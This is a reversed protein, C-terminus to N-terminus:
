PAGAADVPVKMTRRIHQQPKQIKRVFRLSGHRRLMRREGETLEPEPTAPPLEERRYVDPLARVNEAREGPGPKRRSKPVAIPEGKRRQGTVAFRLSGLKNQTPAPLAYRYPENSRLMLFAITVLKRATATVAINRNKRKAVRRFFAGLPGPHHALHQAAQTLMWRTHRRGAKTIPGHYCHNASQKIRPVLGLYSAAHDGDKFRTIDGLAALLSQAAAYGFGPLTMLLRVRDEQYALQALTKDLVAIEHNVAEILRLDGEILLRDDDAWPYRQLWAIGKQSFLVEVPPVILAQALVSQIRNKARSRDSVLAARRVTLRRLQLTPGDPQWVAPLYGCRLLHALVEADVKDTKIKAQAIAKTQLPNNVVVEAVHPRLLRVVAWTNTTAELAVRDEAALTKQAFHSLAQQSCAVTGRYLCRGEGDLICVQASRKHVDLGVHRIM